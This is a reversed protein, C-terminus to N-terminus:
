PLSPARLTEFTLGLARVPRKQRIALAITHNHVFLERAAHGCSTWVQGTEVCRVRFDCRGSPFRNSIEEALEEDELLAFLRDHEIGGLVEPYQRALRRWSQRHAYLTKGFRRLQLCERFKPKRLWKRVRDDKVGLITAVARHHLWNGYQSCISGHRQCVTLRIAKASRHPWKKRFQRILEAPPLDGCHEALWAHEAQTWYTYQKKM